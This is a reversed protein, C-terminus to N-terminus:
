SPAQAGGATDIPEPIPTGPVPVPTVPQAPEPPAAALEAEWDLVQQQSYGLEAWLQRRPVDLDKKKTVADVHQSESKTEPNRFAAEAGTMAAWKEFRAAAAASNGPARAKIRFALRMADELPDKWDDGREGAVASIGREVATLSEGSPFTGQTGLLYHPPFRSATAIAQVLTEHVKIYGALDTQSFEALRPEPEGPANPPVTILSDLAVDFPQVPAGTAPDVELAFNLMVKQRFAGYLGALMVNAINANIADQIPVVKGLESEGTLHLDPKNPFPIVPVVGLPNPLPWPEGPVIRREWSTGGLTALEAGATNAALPTRYKYVADPLFLNAFLAGPEDEDAWRKLAARRVGTEPHVSTIVEAGDEVWIRPAWDEDPWLVLSFEGKILGSRMGRKFGADLNNDQWIEWAAASARDDGGFTFGDVGLRESISDVVVGAYNVYIPMRLGFAEIVRRIKYTERHRGEYYAQYLAMGTADVLRRDVGVDDRRGARTFTARGARETLRRGLRDLWWEPSGVAPAASV